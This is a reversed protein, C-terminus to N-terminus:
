WVHLFTTKRDTLKFYAPVSCRIYRNSVPLATQFDRYHALNEKRTWVTGAGCGGDQVIPVLDRGQPCLPRPTASIGGGGRASTLYVTTGRNERNAKTGQELTFM